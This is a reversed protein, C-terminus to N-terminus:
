CQGRRAYIRATVRRVAFFQNRIMDVPAGTAVTVKLKDARRRALWIDFRDAAVIDAQRITLM